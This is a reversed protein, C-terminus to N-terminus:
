RSQVCRVYHVRLTTAQASGARCHFVPSLNASAIPLTSSSHVQTGNLYWKLGGTTAGDYLIQMRYTSGSTFAGVDTDTDETAGTSEGVEAQWVTGGDVKHFNFGDYDAPPGGGATQMPVTGSATITSSTASGIMGVHMNGTAAADTVTVRAEFLMPRGAAIVFGSGDIVGGTHVGATETPTNIGHVLNVSTDDTAATTLAIGQLAGTGGVLATGTTKIVVWGGRSLEIVDDVSDLYSAWTPANFSDFLENHQLCYLSQPMSPIIDCLVKGATTSRDVTERARLCWGTFLVGRRAYYTGPQPGLLDGSTISQDTWAYVASVARETLPIGTIRGPATSTCVQGASSHHVLYASGFINNMTGQTIVVEQDAVLTQTPDAFLIMGERLTTADACKLEHVMPPKINYAM